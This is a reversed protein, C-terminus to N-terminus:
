LALLTLRSQGSLWHSEPAGEIAGAAEFEQIAAQRHKSTLSLCTRSARPKDALPRCQDRLRNVKKRYGMLLGAFAVLCILSALGIECLVRIVPHAYLVSIVPDSGKTSSRRRRCRKM